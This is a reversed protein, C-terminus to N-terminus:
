RKASAADSSEKAKRKADDRACWENFLSWEGEDGGERIVDDPSEGSAIIENFDRIVQEVDIPKDTPEPRPTM